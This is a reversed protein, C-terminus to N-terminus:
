ERPQAGRVKKIFKKDLGAVDGVCNGSNDLYWLGWESLSVMPNELPKSHVLKFKDFLKPIEETRDFLLLGSIYEIQDLYKVRIRTDHIPGNINDNDNSNMTSDNSNSNTRPNNDNTDDQGLIQGTDEKDVYIDTSPVALRDYLVKVLRNDGVVKRVADQDDFLMSKGMMEIVHTIFARSRPTNRLYMIGTSILIKENPNMVFHPTEISVFIDATRDNVITTRFDPDLVVTDADLCWVNFGALLFREILYPKYRMMRTFYATRPKQAETISPFGPLFISLTGRSILSEHVEIDLSWYILNKIGARTMSCRLNAALTLFARNVPIVVIENNIAIKSAFERLCDIRVSADEITCSSNATIQPANMHNDEIWKLLKAEQFENGLVNIKRIFYFSPESEGPPFLHRDKYGLWSPHAADITGFRLYRKADNVVTDRFQPSNLLVTAFYSEDPIYTHEQFALFNLADIDSRLHKILDPTVIMWQHHKFARWRPFPWSTVGLGQPHYLSSYDALGIHARYFREALDDTQAWHEIFNKGRNADTMLFRHMDRNRKLPYDYNSLNVIYDWDAMDLLEWFGSLQTFVLSSHGWINCFQQQALFVNAPTGTAQQRETIWTQIKVKLRASKPRGDVHIMVIADGDDLKEILRTLHLFGNEEHVMVLYALLYKRRPAPLPSPGPVISKVRESFYMIPDVQVLLRSKTMGVYASNGEAAFYCSLRRLEDLNPDIRRQGYQAQYLLSQYVEHAKGDVIDIFQAQTPNIAAVSGGLPRLHVTADFVANNLITCFTFGNAVFTTRPLTDKFVLTTDPQYFRGGVTASVVPEEEIPTGPNIYTSPSSPASSGSSQAAAASQGPSLPTIKPDQWHNPNLPADNDSASLSHDSNTSDSSSSASSSSSSPSVSSPSQSRMPSLLVLARLLWFVASLSVVFLLLSRLLRGKGAFTQRLWLQLQPVLM